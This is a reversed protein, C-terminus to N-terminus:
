FNFSSGKLLYTLTTYKLIRNLCYQGEAKRGIHRGAKRGIQMGEERHRDIQRGEERHRDIQM